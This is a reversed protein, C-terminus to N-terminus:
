NSERIEYKSTSINNGSLKMAEADTIIGKECFLAILYAITRRNNSIDSEIGAGEEPNYSLCSHFFEGLHKGIIDVSKIDDSQKRFVRKM